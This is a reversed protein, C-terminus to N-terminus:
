RGEALTRLVPEPQHAVLYVPTETLEITHEGITNGM